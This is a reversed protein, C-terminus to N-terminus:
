GVYETKFFLICSSDFEGVLYFEADEARCHTVMINSPDFEHYLGKYPQTYTEIIEFDGEFAHTEFNDIASLPAKTLKKLKAFARKLGYNLEDALISANYTGNLDEYDDYLFNEINKKSLPNKTVVEGDELLENIFIKLKEM